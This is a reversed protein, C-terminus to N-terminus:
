LFIFPNLQLAAIAPSPAALRSNLEQVSTRHAHATDACVIMVVGTMRM